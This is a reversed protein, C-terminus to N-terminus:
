MGCAVVGSKLALLWHISVAPKIRMRAAQKTLKKVLVDNVIGCNLESVIIRRRDSYRWRDTALRIIPQPSLSV